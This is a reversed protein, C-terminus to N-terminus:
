ARIHAPLATPRGSRSDVCVYRVAAEAVKGGAVRYVGATRWEAETQGLRARGDALQVVVEDDHMEDHEVISISGGALARRVAFYEVVASRGRYDGAIPSTGPVHWVIDEAMLEVLPEVEGGAYMARQRRLFEDVIEQAGSM